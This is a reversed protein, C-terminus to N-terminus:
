ATHAMSAFPGLPPLSPIYTVGTDVEGRVRFFGGAQMRREKATAAFHQTVNSRRVLLPLYPLERQRAFRRAVRKMHDYGRRRINRPATPTPVIVANDPLAPALEHFLDALVEGVARARQFKYADILVKVIGRRWLLCHISSYPLGQHQARRCRPGCRVCGVFRQRMIYKKCDHCVIDGSKQCHYCHHPAIFSLLYEFM